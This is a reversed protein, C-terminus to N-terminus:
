KTTAAAPQNLPTSVGSAAEEEQLALSAESSEWREYRGSQSEFCSTDVGAKGAETEKEKGLDM